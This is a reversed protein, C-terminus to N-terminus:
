ATQPTKGSDVTMPGSYRLKCVVVNDVSAMNIGKSPLSLHAQIM